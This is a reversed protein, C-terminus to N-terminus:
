LVIQQCAHPCKTVFLPMSQHCANVHGGVHMHLEQHCASVNNCYAKLLGPV